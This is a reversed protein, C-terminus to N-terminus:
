GKKVTKEVIGYNVVGKKGDAFRPCATNVWCEIFPFNEFEAPNITDALFIYCNKDKLRKKLEMAKKLKEQGPKTSVIIGINDSSLFKMLAGKQQKKLKEVEEKELVKAENTLPNAMVVKKGTELQVEIPHFRGSGVYLIVDAKIKKAASADCGLVQGGIEAKIGKEELIKKVEKLKHKHQATTVIGVKKPLYKMAKEVAKKVDAKSKAEIFLMEM